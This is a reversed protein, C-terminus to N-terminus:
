TPRDGADQSSVADPDPSMAAGANVVRGPVAARRIIWALHERAEEELARHERRLLGAREFLQYSHPIM